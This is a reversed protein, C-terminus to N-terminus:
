YYYYNLVDCWLTGAVTAGMVGGMDEQTSQTQKKLRRQDPPRQTQFHGFVTQWSVREVETVWGGEKAGERGGEHRWHPSLFGSPRCRPLRPRLSRPVPVDTNMWLTYSGRYQQIKLGSDSKPRRNFLITPSKLWGGGEGM